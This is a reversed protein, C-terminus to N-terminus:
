RIAWARSSTIAFFRIADRPFSGAPTVTNTVPPYWVAPSFSFSVRAPHRHAVKTGVISFHSEGRPASAKLTKEWVAESNESAYQEYPYVKKLHEFVLPSNQSYFERWNEQIEKQKQNLAHGTPVLFPNESFDMYRTSAEQGSYLQSDQIAKAVLMSVGEFAILVHGCDGISKHGYGVYYQEMFKEAGKESVEQLHVLMSAPSRSYLAQIMALEEPGISTRPVILYVMGGFSTENCYVDVFVKKTKPNKIKKHFINTNM